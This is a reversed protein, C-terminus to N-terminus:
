LLWFFHFYRASAARGSFHSPGRTPPLFPFGTKLHELGSSFLLQCLSDRMGRAACQGRKRGRSEVPRDAPRLCPPNSFAELRQAHLGYGKRCRQPLSFPQRNAPACGLGQLIPSLLAPAASQLEQRFERAGKPASQGANIPGARASSCPTIRPPINTDTRHLRRAISRTNHSVAKHVTYACHAVFDSVADSSPPGFFCSPPPRQGLIVMATLSPVPGPGSPLVHFPCRFGPQIKECDVALLVTEASRAPDSELIKPHVARTRPSTGASGQVSARNGCGPPVSLTGPV